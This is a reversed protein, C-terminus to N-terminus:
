RDSSARASPLVLHPERGDERRVGTLQAFLAMMFASRRGPELVDRRTIRGLEEFKEWCTRIHEVQVWHSQTGSEVLLRRGPQYASIWNSTANATPFVARTRALLSLLDEVTEWGPPPGDADGKPTVGIPSGPEGRGTSKFRKRRGSGAM